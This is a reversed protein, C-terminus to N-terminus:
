AGDEPRGRVLAVYQDQGDWIHERVAWGTGEVLPVIESAPVNIMSWWPSVKAGYRLRLRVEGVHRGAALNARLYPLHAPDPTHNPDVTDGVLLAGPLSRDALRRLLTRTERWTGGLGLNGCMLLITGWRKDGPPTRLDLVRADRVGRERCVDVAGPSVDVATVDLGRGQFHLAHRGGGCGLDLLPGGQVHRLVRKEADAWAEHPVFFWDPPM